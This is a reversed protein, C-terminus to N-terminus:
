GLMLRIPRPVKPELLMSLTNSPRLAMDSPSPMACHLRNLAPRLWALMRTARSCYRWDSTCYRRVM